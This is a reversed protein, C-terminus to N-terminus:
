TTAHLSRSIFEVPLLGEKASMVVLKQGDLLFVVRFGEEQNVFANSRVPPICIEDASDSVVEFGGVAASGTHDRPTPMRSEYYEMLVMGQNQKNLIGVQVM